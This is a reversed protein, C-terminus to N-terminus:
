LGFQKKIQDTATIGHRNLFTKIRDKWTAVNTWYNHDSLDMEPPEPWDPLAMWHHHINEPKPDFLDMIEAMCEDTTFKGYKYRVLMKGLQEILVPKEM